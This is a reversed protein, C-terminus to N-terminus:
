YIAKLQTEDGILMGSRLDGVYIRAHTTEQAHKHNQEQLYHSCVYQTRSISLLLNPALNGLHKHSPYYIKLPGSRHQNGAIDGGLGGHIYGAVLKIPTNDRQENGLIVFLRMM